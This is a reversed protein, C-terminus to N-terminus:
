KDQMGELRERAGPRRTAYERLKRVQYEGRAKWAKYEEPTMPNKRKKKM